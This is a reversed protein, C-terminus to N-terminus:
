GHHFPTWDVRMVKLNIKGDDVLITKGPKLAEGLKHYSIAVRKENGDENERDDLIFEQGDKLMVSGNVFNKLRIEPGKTDLLLPVNKNLKARAEKVLDMMVKQSEHTGHSFNFRACNMGCKILKILREKTNVAPGITCIIKTRRMSNKWEKKFTNYVM